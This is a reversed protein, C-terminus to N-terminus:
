LRIRQRNRSVCIQHLYVEETKAAHSFRSNVNIPCHLLNKSGETVANKRSIPNEAAATM